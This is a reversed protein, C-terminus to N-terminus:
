HPLPTVAPDLLLRRVTRGHRVHEHMIERVDAETRYAYWVGDPYVVLAPGHECMNLCLAHNVRVRRLGHAMTLRCMLDSLARAGKDACCGRTHGAPRQHVCCFVHIDYFGSM